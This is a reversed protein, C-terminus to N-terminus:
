VNQLLENSNVCCGSVQQRNAYSPSEPTRLSRKRLLVKFLGAFTATRQSALSCCCCTLGSPPAPQNISVYTDARGMESSTFAGYHAVYPCDGSEPVTFWSLDARLRCNWTSCVAACRAAETNLGYGGATTELLCDMSAGDGVGLQWVPIDIIKADTPHNNLAVLFRPSATLVDTPWCM